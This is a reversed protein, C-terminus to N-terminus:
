GSMDSGSTVCNASGPIHFQPVAIIINISKYIHYFLTPDNTTFYRFIDV